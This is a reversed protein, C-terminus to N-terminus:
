KAYLKSDIFGSAILFDYPKKPKDKLNKIINLLEPLTTENTIFKEDLFLFFSFKKLIFNEPKKARFNYGYTHPLAFAIKKSLPHKLYKERIKKEEFAHPMLLRDDLFEEWKLFDFKTIYYHCQSCLLAGNEIISKGGACLPIIHHYEEIDYALSYYKKIADVDVKCKQCIGNEREKIQKKQELTFGRKRM